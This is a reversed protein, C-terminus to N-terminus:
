ALHEALELAAQRLSARTAPLASIANLLGFDHITGVYRACTVAVGAEDLKRAYAEGEDRLVDNEATQILAPPLGALRQVPARLPSAYPEEQQRETAYLSWGYDMLAKPLFRGAAFCRYSETDRSADTVPYLLLQFRLKPGGKDKAMLAVVAAMNGGVSNGALALRSGDVGIEAGHAAVWKTAAYAENIAVPYRVLPISSYNVFIAAARSHVVLDRVLRQHNDFDGLLWVGGHFFMFAPMLAPSERPRVIHLGVSHGDQEITRQSVEVGSLDVRTQDQLGGLIAQAEAATKGEWFAVNGGANLSALFRRVDSLIAPDTAASRFLAAVDAPISAPM